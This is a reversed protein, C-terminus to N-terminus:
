VKRIVRKAIDPGKFVLAIAVVVLALAGIATAVGSLDVAAIAATIGDAAFAGPSVLAAATAATMASLRSFMFKKMKQLEFNVPFDRDSAAQM